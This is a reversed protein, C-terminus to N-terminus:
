VVERCHITKNTVKIIKLNNGYQKLFLEIASTLIQYTVMIEHPINQQKAVEKLNKDTGCTYILNSAWDPSIKKWDSLPVYVIDGTETKGFYKDNYIDIFGRLTSASLNLLDKVDEQLSINDAIKDIQNM